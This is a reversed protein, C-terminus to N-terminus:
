RQSPRIRRGSEADINYRRVRGDDTLIRINHTDAQGRRQTEASLVRGKYRDRAESVAQELSTRREPGALLTSSGLMLLAIMLLHKKM